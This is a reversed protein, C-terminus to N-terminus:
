PKFLYTLRIVGRYTGPKDEWTTLIRFRLSSVEQLQPGTFAGEAVLCTEGLSEYGAGAGHDSNPDTYQNKFFIRDPPINGKESVLAEAHCSVTWSGSVSGVYVEVPMEADYVGPPGQAHFFVEDQSLVLLSGDVPFFATKQPRGSPLEQAYGVKSFVLVCCLIFAGRM